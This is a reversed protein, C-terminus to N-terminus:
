EGQTKITSFDLKVKNGAIDAFSDEIDVIERIGEIIPSIKELLSSKFEADTDEITIELVNDGLGTYIYSGTLSGEMGVVDVFFYVKEGIELVGSNAVSAVNPNNEFLEPLTDISNVFDEYLVDGRYLLNAFWNGPDDTLSVSGDKELKYKYTGPISVMNNGLKLEFVTDAGVALASRGNNNRAVAVVITVIIIVLVAASIGIMVWLNKFFQLSLGNKRRRQKEM